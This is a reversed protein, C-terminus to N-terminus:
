TLLQAKPDDNVQFKSKNERHFEDIDCAICSPQVNYM